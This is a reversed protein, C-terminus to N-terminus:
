LASMLIVGAGFSDYSTPLNYTKFPELPTIDEILDLDEALKLKELIMSTIADQETAPLTKLKTIVQELLETV